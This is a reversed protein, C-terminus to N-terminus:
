GLVLQHGLEALVHVEDHIQADCVLSVLTGRMVQDISLKLTQIMWRIADELQRRVPVTTQRLAELVDVDGAALREHPVVDRLDDLHEPIMQLLRSDDERRVADQRLLDDLLDLLFERDHHVLYCAYVADAAWNSYARLKKM